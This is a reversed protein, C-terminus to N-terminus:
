LIAGPSPIFDFPAGGEEPSPLRLAAAAGSGSTEAFAVLRRKVASYLNAITTRASAQSVGAPQKPPLPQVAALKVSPGEM